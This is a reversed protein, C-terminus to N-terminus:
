YIADARLIEIAAIMMQRPLMQAIAPWHRCTRLSEPTDFIALPPPIAAFINAIAAIDACRSLRMACHM